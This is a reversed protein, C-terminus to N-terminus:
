WRTSSNAWGKRYCQCDIHLPQDIAITQGTNLDTKVLYWSGLSSYTAVLTNNSLLGFVRMGFVWQPLGFEGNPQSLVLQSHHGDFQYICWWGTKDSAYYLKGNEGWEPQFISTSPGGAVKKVDNPIGNSLNATYLETGDWPMQPHRWELWAMTKGDPSLRPTSYFDSGAIEFRIKTTELSIGILRNSPEGTPRHDEEIALLLQSSRNVELDAYRCLEEGYFKNIKNHQLYHIHQDSQNVFWLGQEDATYAGGGYEHVKSSASFPAPLLDRPPKTGQQSVIVSRGQDTPRSEVWYSVDGCIQPLSYRISGATVTNSDIPSSWVGFPAQTISKM